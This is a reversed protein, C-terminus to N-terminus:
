RVGWFRVVNKTVKITKAICTNECGQGATAEILYLDRPRM